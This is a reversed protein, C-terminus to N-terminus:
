FWPKRPPREAAREQRLTPARLAPPCLGRPTDAGAPRVCTPPPPTVVAPSTPTVLPMAYQNMHEVRESACAALGLALVLPGLDLGVFANKHRKRSVISQAHM